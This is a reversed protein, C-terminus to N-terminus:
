RPDPASDVGARAAHDIEAIVSFPLLATDLAVSLPLQPVFCGGCRDMQEFTLRTGGYVRLRGTGVSGSCCWGVTTVDAVTACGTFLLPLFAAAAWKKM